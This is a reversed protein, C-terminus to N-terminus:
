REDKSKKIYSDIEDVDAQLAESLKSLNIWPKGEKTNDFYVKSNPENCPTVACSM